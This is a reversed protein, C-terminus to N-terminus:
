TDYKVECDVVTYLVFTKNYKIYQVTPIELVEV